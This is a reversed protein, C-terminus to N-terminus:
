LIRHSKRWNRTSESIGPGVRYSSMDQPPVKRFSFPQITLYQNEATLFESFYQGTYCDMHKRNREAWLQNEGRMQVWHGTNIHVLKQRVLSWKGYLSSAIPLIQTTEQHTITSQPINVLYLRQSIPKQTVEEPLHSSSCILSSLSSTKVPGSKIQCSIIFSRSVCLCMYIVWLSIANSWSVDVLGTLKTSFFFFTINTM